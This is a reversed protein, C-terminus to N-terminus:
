SIEQYITRTERVVGTELTKQAMKGLVRPLRAVGGSRTWYVGDVLLLLSRGIRSSTQMSELTMWSTSVQGTPPHSPQGGDRILDHYAKHEGRLCEQFYAENEAPDNLDPTPSLRMLLAGVLVLINSTRLPAASQM